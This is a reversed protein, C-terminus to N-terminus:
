LLPWRLHETFFLAKLFRAFNLPFNVSTESAFNASIVPAPTEQSIELLVKKVSCKWVVAANQLLVMVNQLLKANVTVAHFTDM